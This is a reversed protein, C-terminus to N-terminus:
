QRADGIRLSRLVCDSFRKNRLSRNNVSTRCIRFDNVVAVRIEFIDFTCIHSICGVTRSRNDIFVVAIINHIVADPKDTRTRSTWPPHAISTGNLDIYYRRRTRNVVDSINIDIM